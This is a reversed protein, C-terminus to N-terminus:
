YFCYLDYDPPRPYRHNKDIALIVLAALYLLCRIAYSDGEITTHAMEIRCQGTSHEKRAEM